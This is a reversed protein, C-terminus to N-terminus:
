TSLANVSEPAIAELYRRLGPQTDLDERLGELRERSADVEFCALEGLVDDQLLVHYEDLRSRAIDAALTFDRRRMALILHVSRRTSELTATASAERELHALARLAGSEDGTAALLRALQARAGGSIAMAASARGGTLAVRAHTLAAELNGEREAAQSLALAAAAAFPGTGRAVRELETRAPSSQELVFRRVLSHLREHERQRLWAYLALAGAGVTVFSLWRLVFADRPLTRSIAYLGASAGAILLLARMSILRQSGLPPDSTQPEHALDPLEFARVAHEVFEGAGPLIRNAWASRDHADVATSADPTAADDAAVDKVVTSDTPVDDVSADDATRPADVPANTLRSLARLLARERPPLFERMFAEHASLHESLRAPDSRLTLAQALRAHAIAHADTWPDAVLAAVDAHAHERNGAAAHVFARRGRALARLSRAHVRGYWPLPLALASDLHTLADGLEARRIAHHARMLLASLLALEAGSSAEARTLLSRAEDLNGATTEGFARTLLATAWAYPVAFLGVWLLYALLATSVFAAFPSGTWVLWGTTLASIGAGVLSYIRQHEM